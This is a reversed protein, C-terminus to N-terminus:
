KNRSQGKRRHNSISHGQITKKVKYKNQRKVQPAVHIPRIIIENIENKPCKQIHYLKTLYLSCNWVYASRKNTGAVTIVQGM